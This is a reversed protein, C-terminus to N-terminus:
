DLKRELTVACHMWVDSHWYRGGQDPSGVRTIGQGRGPNHHSGQGCDDMGDVGPADKEGQQDNEEQRPRGDGFYVTKM